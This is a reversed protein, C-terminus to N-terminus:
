DSDRVLHVRYNRLQAEETCLDFLSGGGGCSDLVCIEACDDALSLGKSLDHGGCCAQDFFVARFPNDHRANCSRESFRDLVLSGANMKDSGVLTVYDDRCRHCWEVNPILNALLDVVCVDGKKAAGPHDDGGVWLKKAQRM